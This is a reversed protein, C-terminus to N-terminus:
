VAPKFRRAAGKVTTRKKTKDVRNTLKILATQPDEGAAVARRFKDARISGANGGGFFMQQTKIDATAIFDAYRPSKGDVTKVERNRRYLKQGKVAKQTKYAGEGTPKTNMAEQGYRIQGPDEPDVLVVQCRCNVHVPTKPFEGKGARVEGDLPACTACTRSDLASVWEYKLGLQAFADRNANWVDEKVQRNYDQIATRAVAMEQGELQNKLPARLREAITATSEGNIIGGTVIQNIRNRVSKVFTSPKGSEEPIFLGLVRRNNVKTNLLFKTSDAMILDSPVLGATKPVISHLMLTTEEAAVAGSLPLQRSLEIAFADNYPELVREVEALIVRWERQRALSEDPLLEVLQRIEDLSRRLYPDLYRKVKRADAENGFAGNIFLRLQESNM